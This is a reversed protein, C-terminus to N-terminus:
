DKIKELLEGAKDKFAPHEAAKLACSRAKASQGFNFHGAAANYYALARSLLAKERQATKRRILRTKRTEPLASAKLEDIKDNIALALAENAGGAKEYYEGSKDWVLKRAFIGGLHYLAESDSANFKLAELFDAKAREDDGLGLEILGSLTFVQGEGLLKKAQEIDDRAEVERGLDHLNWALWFHSEGLFYYGLGILKELLPMADANRGLTTLSIAKGLIAERYGPMLELTKDFFEISREFDEEAFAVSALSIAIQPSEPIAEFAPVYHGEAELLNGQSLSANGLFYHVELCMPDDALIDELPKPDARSDATAKVFRLLRSSPHFGLPDEVKLSDKHNELFWGFQSMFEALIYAAVRDTRSREAADRVLKSLEDPQDFYWQVQADVDGMIGKSRHSLLRAIELLPKRGKLKPNFAILHSAADLPRPDIIGLDKERVGLLM